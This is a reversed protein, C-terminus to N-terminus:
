IEYIQKGHQRKRQEIVRKEGCKRFNFFRKNDGEPVFHKGESKRTTLFQYNKVM